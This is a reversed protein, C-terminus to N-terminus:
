EVKVMEIRNEQVIALTQSNPAWPTFSINDRVFKQKLAGAADFIQFTTAELGSNEMALLRTGDPSWDLYFRESMAHRWVTKQTAYNWVWLESGTVVEDRRDKIPTKTSKFKVNAIAVWPKSPHLAFNLANRTPPAPLARRTKGDWLLLLNYNAGHYDRTGLVNNQSWAWPLLSSARTKWLVKNTTADRVELQNRRRNTAAFLTQDSNFLSQGAPKFSTNFSRIPAGTQADLMVLRNGQGALTRGDPSYAIHRAFANETPPAYPVRWILQGSTADWLAAETSYRYQARKGPVVAVPIPATNYIGAIQKGDPSWAPAFGPFSSPFRLEGNPQLTAVDFLTVRNENNRDQYVVALRRGDPSFELASVSSSRQSPDSNVYADALFITNAGPAQRWLTAAIAAFVLSPLGVLVWDARSWPTKTRMTTLLGSKSEIAEAGSPAPLM